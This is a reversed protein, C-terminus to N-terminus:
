GGQQLQTVAAVADPQTEIAAGPAGALGSMRLVEAPMGALACLILRGGQERLRDHLGAAPRIIAESASVVGHLDVVVKRAGSRAVAALMELRIAEALDDDLIQSETLTLVLVGRDVRSTLHHYHAEDAYAALLGQPGGTTVVTSADPTSELQFRIHTAGIQFSEGPLLDHEAARRGPVLTGMSSGADALHLRGGALRAHCHVRSVQPDKMQTGTHQGRGVVLTQGEELLFTRGQDPGAVVLLQGRM